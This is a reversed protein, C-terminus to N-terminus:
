GDKHATFCIPVNRAQAEEVAEGWTRAWIIGESGAQPGASSLALGGLLAALIRLKM